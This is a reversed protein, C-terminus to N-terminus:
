FHVGDESPVPVELAIPPIVGHQEYLARYIALDAFVQKV